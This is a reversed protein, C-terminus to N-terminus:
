IELKKLMWVPCSGHGTNGMPEDLYEFGFKKYLKQADRMYPMTELYCNVFGFNKASELCCEMMKAGIGIGRAEELFYMKQLECIDNAGNELPAIGAGGIITGEQEVVFYESNKQNYTEYMCDLSVDAYATGIKPVNHEILVQRIVKAIAVDDALKIKRIIVDM